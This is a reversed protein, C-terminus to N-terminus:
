NPLLPKAHQFCAPAMTKSDTCTSVRHLRRTYAVMTKNINTNSQTVITNNTNSQKTNGKKKSYRYFSVIFLIIFYYLIAFYISLPSNELSFM